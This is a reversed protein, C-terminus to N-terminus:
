KGRALFVRAAAQLSNPNKKLGQRADSYKNERAAHQGTGVGPKVVPPAKQVSAVAASKGSQLKDFQAAKWSLAAFRADYVNDLEGDTYGVSKAGSKATQVAEPGWDKITKQLFKHGEEILRQKHESLKGNLQQAKENIKGNLETAREKLTDFQGRLKIYNEVELSSWDVQKYRDLDAQVRNLETRESAIEQEFTQRTQIAEAALQAQRTLDALEQTKRTYDERRLSGEKWESVKAKLEKPLRYGIGDVDFEETGDDEPQEPTETEQPVEESAETTQEDAVAVEPAPNFIAAMRSEISPESGTPQETAM